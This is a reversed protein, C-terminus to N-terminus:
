APRFVARVDPRRLARIMVVFALALGGTLLLTISVALSRYSSPHSAAEGIVGTWLFVWLISFCVVFILGLWCLAEIAPRAWPRLRLLGVACFVVVLGVLMQLTVEVGFQRFVSRLTRVPLLGSFATPRNFLDQMGGLKWMILGLLGGLFRFGGFILWAAGIVTVARPRQEGV